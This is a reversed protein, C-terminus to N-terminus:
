IIIVISGNIIASLVQSDEPIPISQCITKQIELVKENPDVELELSVPGKRITFKM